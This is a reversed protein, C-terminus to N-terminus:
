RASVLAPWDVIVSLASAQQPAAPVLFREGDATV